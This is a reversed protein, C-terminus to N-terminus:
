YHLGSVEKKISVRNLLLIDFKFAGKGERRKLDGKQRATM